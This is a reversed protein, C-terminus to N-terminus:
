GYKQPSHFQLFYKDSLKGLVVLAYELCIVQSRSADTEPLDPIQKLDTYQFFNSATYVTKWLMRVVFPNFNGPAYWIANIAQEGGCQQM